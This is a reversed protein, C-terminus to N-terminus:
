KRETVQTGTLGAVQTTTTVTSSRQYQVDTGRFLLDNSLHPKQAVEYFIKHAYKKRITNLTKEKTKRNLNDNLVIVEEQFEELEYDAYYRLTDTWVADNAPMLMKLAIYLAAAALKSDSRTITEYDMLGYELIYRALTLSPLAIKACQPFLPSFVFHDGVTLFCFGEVFSVRAYRRLFRYSLPVGLNYNVARFVNREMEILEKRTYAGDCIYLFDDIYPPIREDFKCAIFLAAAGLLQLKEKSLQREGLYLDVLKVALYLTEHNLEFSEQVEVMWDVLLSRMWKSIVPQDAIYDRVPFEGEKSKLYDFIDLAYDGIQFCDPQTEQDFDVVGAPVPGRSPRETLERLHQQSREVVTAVSAENVSSEDNEKDDCEEEDLSESIVSSVVSRRRPDSEVLTGNLSLRSDSSDICAFM